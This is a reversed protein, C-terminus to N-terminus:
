EPVPVTVVETPRVASAGGKELRRAHEMALTARRTDGAERYAASLLIAPASDDRSLQVSRNLADIARQNEGARMAWLGLLLHGEHRRPSLAIVRNACQRLEPQNELVAAVNGLGIWAEVDASGQADRTLGRLLARAEVPKDMEMLCMARLHILDRRALGEEQRGHADILRRLSYEAEAWREAGIQARALDELINLDDPALLHAEHFYRVATLRDGEMQAIHGLTQRVGANHEFSVAGDTLLQKARDLEGQEILMEACALTFQANTPDAEMAKEFSARADATRSFREFVIGKFYHAEANDPELEVVRDFASMATELRGMEMLIRGRLLHSKPVAENLAISNDVNDLAKKLDGSNFQQHALDWTTGSKIQAMRLEAQEKFAQTYKGHGPACGTLAVVCSGGILAAARVLDSRFVGRM